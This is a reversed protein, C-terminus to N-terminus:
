ARSCNRPIKAISGGCNPAIKMISFDPRGGPLISGGWREAGKMGRLPGFVSRIAGVVQTYENSNKMAM